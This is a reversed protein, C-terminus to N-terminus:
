KSFLFILTKTWNVLDDQVTLMDVESHPMLAGLTFQLLTIKYM